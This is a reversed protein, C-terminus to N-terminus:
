FVLLRYVLQEPDQPCCPYGWLIPFGTFSNQNSKCSFPGSVSTAEYLGM